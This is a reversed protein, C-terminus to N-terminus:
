KETWSYSEKEETMIIILISKEEYFVTLPAKYREGELMSEKNHRSPAILLPQQM